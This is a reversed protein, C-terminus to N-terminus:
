RYEFASKTQMMLAAGIGAWIEQGVTSGRESVKFLRDIAGQRPAANNNM